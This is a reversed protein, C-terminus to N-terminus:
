ECRPGNDRMSDHTCVRHLTLTCIVPRAHPASNLEQMAPSKKPPKPPAKRKKPPSDEVIIPASSSRLSQLSPSVSTHVSAAQVSGGDPEYDRDASPPSAVHVNLTRLTAAAYYLASFHHFDDKELPSQTEEQLGGAAGPVTTAQFEPSNEHDIIIFCLCAVNALLEPCVLLM